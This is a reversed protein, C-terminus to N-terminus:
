PKRINGFFFSLVGIFGAALQGVLMYLVDHNSQDLKSLVILFSMSVFGVVVILAISDMVWDRKPCPPKVPVFKVEPKKM